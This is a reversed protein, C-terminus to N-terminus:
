KTERLRQWLAQVDEYAAECTSVDCNAVVEAAVRVAETFSIGDAKMFEWAMNNVRVIDTTPYASAIDARIDEETLNFQFQDLVEITPKTQDKASKRLRSNPFPAPDTSVFCGSPIKPPKTREGVPANQGLRAKLRALASMM